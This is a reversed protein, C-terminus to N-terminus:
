YPTTSDVPGFAKSFYIVDNVNVGIIDSLTINTTSGNTILKAYSDTSGTPSINTYWNTYQATRGSVFAVSMNSSFNGFANSPSSITDLIKEIYSINESINAKYSMFDISTKPIINNLVDETVVLTQGITDINGKYFDSNLLVDENYYCFLGTRDTNANVVNKIYMDLGSVDRFNPILCVDYYANVTTLRDNVFNQVQTKILGNSNFYAGWYPDASLTAYDTYDGVVSLVSVMYDSIYDKPNMFLPVKDQGGYWQEASVDFGTISSKFMWVTVKKDGMNTISFLNKNPDPSGSTLFQEYVVDSFSEVDREWFDQRNFFREYPATEKDSNDYQAAVSIAEWELTDRIPDTKLLNLAWIPGANLMDEVTGHFYSGKNELNKDIPGYIDEFVGPDDIRIPKNFPGKKSFGPVLNILVEQIPREIMSLDKEEIFIGPRKYKGLDKNDIPM